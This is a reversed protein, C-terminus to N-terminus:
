RTPPEKEARHAAEAGEIDWERALEFYHDYAEARSLRQNYEALAAAVAATKTRHGGLRKAQELAEDDIEIHTLSM